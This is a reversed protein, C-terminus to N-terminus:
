IHHYLYWFHLGGYGSRINLVSKATRMLKRM